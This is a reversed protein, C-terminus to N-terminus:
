NSLTISKDISGVDLFCGKINDIFNLRGKKPECLSNTKFVTFLSMLFPLLQGNNYILLNSIQQTRNLIIKSAKYISFVKGTCKYHFALMPWIMNWSLMILILRGHMYCDVRDGKVMKISALGFVSKWTKFILEIQWRLMYLSYAKQASLLECPINSILLTLQARAKHEKSPEGARRRRRGLHIKRIREQRLAEPLVTIILRTCINKEEGLYVEKELISLNNGKMFNYIDKFDLRKYQGKCIEYVSIRPDLRCCYHASRKGITTLIKKHMYALDRIILDGPQILDATETSNAADQNVFSEIRFDTLNGSLLDYELQLRVVAETQKQESGCGRYKDKLDRPLKFCTSDKILVRNYCKLSEDIQDFRLRKRMLNELVKRLFVIANKNFRESLSQKTMLIRYKKELFSCNSELTQDTLKEANFVILDLFKSGTLKGRRIRENFATQRALRDLDDKSFYTSINKDLRKALDKLFGVSNNM